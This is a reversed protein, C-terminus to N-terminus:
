FDVQRQRGLAPILPRAKQYHKDTKLTNIKENDDYFYLAVMLQNGQNDSFINEISKM